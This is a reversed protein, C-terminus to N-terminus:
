ELDALAERARAKTTTDDKYRVPLAIARQLATRAEENRGKETLAM